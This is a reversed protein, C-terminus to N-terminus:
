LRYLPNSIYSVEDSKDLYLNSNFIGSLNESNIDNVHNDEQFRPTLPSQDLPNHYTNSTISQSYQHSFSNNSNMLATPARSDSPSLINEYEGSNEDIDSAVQFKDVSHDDVEIDVEDEEYQEFEENAYEDEDDVNADLEKLNNVESLGKLDEQIENNKKSLSKVVILNSMSRSHTSDKEVELTKMFTHNLLFEVSPRKGPNINFCLELYAKFEDSIIVGNFSPSKGSGIHFMATMPNDYESFPINATLMEVITCGLSWIDAKFWETALQTGKIVEPAMWNPTGKLGSVLSESEYKKSSGFDALKVINQHTLLCNACKIDRHAIGKSHLYELGNLIQRTCNIAQIEKLPGKRRYHNMLSGRDAFELFINIKNLVQQTGYYEIINRHNLEKMTDIENKISLIQEKTMGSTDIQKVAILNGSDNFRAKYVCSSGGKGVLKITEWSSNASIHSSNM